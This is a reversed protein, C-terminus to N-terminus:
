PQPSKRTSSRENKKAENWYLDLRTLGADEMKLGDRAIKDEIFSFRSAFKRNASTLANEADVKHHRALNVCAFLLDGMEEALAAQDKTNAAEDLEALEEVIKARVPAADPWDFGVSAARKQLKQARMLAPLAHPIDDLLSAANSKHAREAKKHDEWATTQAEASEVANSGFVHPHRRIMKDVIACVVDDFSFRGAENALQAHYVVQLLLDGLEDRLARMDDNAIADAVEYAEEITYPAITAFTQEKDWPCGHTPDRLARMVEILAEIRAPDKPPNLTM